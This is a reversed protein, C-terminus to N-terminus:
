KSIMMPRKLKSSAPGVVLIGLLGSLPMQQTRTGPRKADFAGSTPVIDTKVAIRRDIVARAIQPEKDASPEISSRCDPFQLLTLSGPPRATHQLDQDHRM